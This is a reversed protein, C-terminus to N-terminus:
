RYYVLLEKIYLTTHLKYQLESIDVDSESYQKGKCQQQDKIFIEVMSKMKLQKPTDVLPIGFLCGPRTPSLASGPLPKYAPLDHCYLKLITSKM